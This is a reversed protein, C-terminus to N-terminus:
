IPPANDWAPRRYRFVTRLWSVDIETLQKEILDYTEEVLASLVLAGMAPDVLYVQRLRQLLDSPKQVMRESVIDPWKFGFYYVRNLALLVFLLQQQVQAYSHYLM